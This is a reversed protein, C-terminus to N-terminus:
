QHKPKFNGKWFRFCFAIIRAIFFVVTAVNLVLMPLYVAILNWIFNVANGVYSDGIEKRLRALEKFQRKLEFMDARYWMWYTGFIDKGGLNPNLNWLVSIM